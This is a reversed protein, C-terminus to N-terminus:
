RAARTDGVAREHEARPRRCNMYACLHRWQVPQSNSPKIRRWVHDTIVAAM